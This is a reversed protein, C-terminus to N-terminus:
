VVDYKLIPLLIKKSTAEVYRVLSDSHDFAIQSNDPLNKSDFWKLELVEENTRFEPIQKVANAVFIVDINQNDEMERNPNDNLFFLKLNEIEWGVEEMVERKAGEIFTEGRDLYGGILAWKGYESLPKGKYTGRRGLLIKNENVIIVNVVVHRLNVQDGNKYFCNIMLRITVSGLVCNTRQKLITM